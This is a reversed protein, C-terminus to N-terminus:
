DDRKEQPCLNHACKKHLSYVLSSPARDTAEVKVSDQTCSDPLCIERERRVGCVSKVPSRAAEM